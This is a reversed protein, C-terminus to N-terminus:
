LLVLAVAVGLAMVLAGMVLPGVTLALAVVVGVFLLRSVVSPFLRIILSLGQRKLSIGVGLVLLTRRLRHRRAFLARLVTVLVAVTVRIRSGLLARRLTGTLHLVLFLRKKVNKGSRVVFLHPAITRALTPFLPIPVWNSKEPHVEDPDWFLLQGARLPASQM